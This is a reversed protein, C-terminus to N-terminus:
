VYCDLLTGVPMRGLDPKPSSTQLTGKASDVYERIRVRVPIPEQPEVIRPGETRLGCLRNAPPLLNRDVSQFRTVNLMM